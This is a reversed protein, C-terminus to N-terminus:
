LCSSFHLLLRADSHRGLSKTVAGLWSVTVDGGSACMNANLAVALLKWGVTKMGRRGEITVRAGEASWAQEWADDYVPGNSPPPTRHPPRGFTVESCFFTGERGGFFVFYVSFVCFGGLFVACGGRTLHGHASFVASSQHSMWIVMQNVVICLAMSNRGADAAVAQSVCASRRMQHHLMENRPSKEEKEKGKICCNSQPKFRWDATVNLTASCVASESSKHFYQLNWIRRM